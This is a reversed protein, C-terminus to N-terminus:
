TMYGLDKLREKMEEDRTVSDGEFDDWSINEETIISSLEEVTNPSESSVEIEEDPLEYLLSKQDNTLFKWNSTRISTFPSEFFKTTDFDENYQRYRNFDASGLQSIAYERSSNRIDRGDFQNTLVNTINAITYTLDIHQTIDKKNDRIDDIGVVMGPVRILGEHLSRTHGILGYEGFLDGHDGVIVILLPGDVEREAMRVLKEVTYDAYRIDADYMATIANWEEDSLNLGTAIRKTITEEGEYVRDSLQDAEATSLEIEGTYEDRFKLIPHYAHHPSQIHTYIFCPDDQQYQQKLWRRFRHEVLCNLSNGLDHIFSSYSQIPNETFRKLATKLYDRSVPDLGFFNKKDNITLLEWHDFGRHLGTEDSLYPNASFLTTQYGEDSLLQPLTDIKSPLSHNATGDQGVQHTSMHTGTLISATSAPTWNSASIMPDLVTTERRNNLESLFPTTNREYGHISTHDARVSELTLWLVNPPSETM